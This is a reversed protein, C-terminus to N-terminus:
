FYTSVSSTMLSLFAIGFVCLPSDGAAAGGCCRCFFCDDGDGWGGDTITVVFHSVKSERKEGRAEADVEAVVVVEEVAADEAEGM